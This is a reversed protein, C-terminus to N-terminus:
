RPAPKLVGLTAGNTDALDRRPGRRPHRDAARARGRRAEQARARAADCDNVAVYPLWMPPVDPLPSTMVGARPVGGEELVNYTGDPMAMQKSTYGFVKEEYFRVATAGDRAWLENWAFHGQTAPM